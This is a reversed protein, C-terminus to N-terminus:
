SEYTGFTTTKLWIKIIQKVNYYITNYKNIILKM